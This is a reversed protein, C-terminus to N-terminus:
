SWIFGFQAFGCCETIIYIQADFGCWVPTLFAGQAAESKSHWTKESEVSFPPLPWSWLDTMIKLCTKNTYTQRSPIRASFYEACTHRQWRLLSPSCRENWVLLVEVSHNSGSKRNFPHRCAGAPWPPPAPAPPPPGPCWPLAWPPPRPAVSIASLRRCWMGNPAPCNWM